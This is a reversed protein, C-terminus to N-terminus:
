SRAEEAQCAGLVSCLACLVPGGLGLMASLAVVAAM